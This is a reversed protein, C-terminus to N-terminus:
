RPARTPVACLVLHEVVPRTYYAGRNTAYAKNIYRWLGAYVTVLLIRTARTNDLFRKAREYRDARGTPKVLINLDRNVDGFPQTRAIYIADGRRCSGDAQDYSHNQGDRGFVGSPSEAVHKYTRAVYMRVLDDEDNNLNNRRRQNLPAGDINNYLIHHVSHGVCMHIYMCVYM